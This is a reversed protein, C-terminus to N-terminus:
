MNRERFFFFFFIIHAFTVKARNKRSLEVGKELKKKKSKKREIWYRVRDTLGLGLRIMPRGRDM